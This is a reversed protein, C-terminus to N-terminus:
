ARRAAGRLPAARRRRARSPARRELWTGTDSVPGHGSRGIDGKLRGIRATRELWTKTDSVPVRGPRVPARWLAAEATVDPAPAPRKGRRAEPYLTASSSM